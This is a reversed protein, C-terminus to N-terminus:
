TFIFEQLQFFIIIVIISRLPWVESMLVKCEVGLLGEKLQLAVKKATPSKLFM